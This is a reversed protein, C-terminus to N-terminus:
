PLDMSAAESHVSRVCTSSLARESRKVSALTSPRRADLPTTVVSSIAASTSPSRSSTMARRLALLPSSYRKEPVWDPVAGMSGDPATAVPSKEPTRRRSTAGPMLTVSLTM